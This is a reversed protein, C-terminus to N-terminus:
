KVLMAIYFDNVKSKGIEHRAIALIVRIQIAERCLAARRGIRCRLQQRFADIAVLDVHPAPLSSLKLNKFLLLIDTADDGICQQRPTQGEGNFWEFDRGQVLFHHTAIHVRDRRIQRLVTAIENLLHQGRVRVLSWSDILNQLM